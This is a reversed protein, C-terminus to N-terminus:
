HECHKNKRKIMKPNLKNNSIGGENMLDGKPKRPLSNAEQWSALFVVFLLLFPLGSDYVRDSGRNYLTQAINLM